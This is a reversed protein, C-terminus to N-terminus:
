ETLVSDLYAMLTPITRNPPGDIVMSPHFKYEECIDKYLKPECHELRCCWRIMNREEPTLDSLHCQVCIKDTQDAFTVRLTRYHFNYAYGNSWLGATEYKALAARIIEERKAQEPDNTELGKANTTDQAARYERYRILVAPVRDDKM